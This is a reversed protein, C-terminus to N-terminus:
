EHAAAKRQELREDLWKNWETRALQEAHEASEYSRALIHSYYRDVGAFLHNKNTDFETKEYPGRLKGREYEIMVEWVTVRLLPDNLSPDLACGVQAEVIDFDDRGTKRACLTALADADAATAYVGKIVSNYSDKVVWVTPKIDISM